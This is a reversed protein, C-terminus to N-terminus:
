KIQEKALGAETILYETEDTDHNERSRLFDEGHNWEIAERLDTLDVRGAVREDCAERLMKETQGYGPAMALSERVLRRIRGKTYSSM